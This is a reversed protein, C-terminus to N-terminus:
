ESVRWWELVIHPYDHFSDCDVCSDACVFLLSRILNKNEFFDSLPRPIVDNL